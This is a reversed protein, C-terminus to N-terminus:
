SIVLLRIFDYSVLVLGGVHPGFAFAFLLSNPFILCIAGRLCFFVGKRGPLANLSCLFDTLWFEIIEM